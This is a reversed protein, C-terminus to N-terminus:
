VVQDLKYLETSFCELILQGLVYNLPTGGRGGAIYCYLPDSQEVTM